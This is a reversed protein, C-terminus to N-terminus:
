DSIICKELVMLLNVPRQSSLNTTACVAFVPCSWYFGSSVKVERTAGYGATISGVESAGALIVGSFNSLVM